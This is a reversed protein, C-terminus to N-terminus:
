GNLAVAIPRKGPSMLNARRVLGHAGAGLFDCDSGSIFQESIFPVGEPLFRRADADVEIQPLGKVIELIKGVDDGVEALKDYMESLLLELDNKLGAMGKQLSSLDDLLLGQSRAVESFQARAATAQTFAKQRLEDIGTFAEVSVM